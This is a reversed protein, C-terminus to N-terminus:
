GRPAARPDQAEPAGFARRLVFYENLPRDDTIAIREDDGLLERVDFERGLIGNEVVPLLPFEENWQLLDRRAAEPMRAVFVEATPMTLPQMSALFHVGWGEISRFARV